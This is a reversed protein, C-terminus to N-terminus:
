LTHAAFSHEVETISMRSNLHLQDVRKLLDLPLALIISIVSIAPGPHNELARRFTEYAGQPDGAKGIMAFGLACAQFGGDEKQLYCSRYQHVQSPLAHRRMREAIELGARIYSALLCGRGDCSNLDM